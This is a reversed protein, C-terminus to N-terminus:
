ASLLAVNEKKSRESWKIVASNYNKFGEEVGNAIKGTDNLFVVLKSDPRRVSKTDDWSFLVNAMNSKSPNNVAKCLRESSNKTRQLVFDYCQAYGSIGTFIVNETYYIENSDLFQQVDDFFISSVRNKTVLFMDDVSLMTQVLMHKKQPFTNISSKCVLSKGNLQVGYQTLIRNLNTKRNPTFKFGTMELSNITEGDDTMFITDDDQRVYIQLYDNANNLYPTTLEYYEGIKSFSIEQKLWDGYENILKQIDM